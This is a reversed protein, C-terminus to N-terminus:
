AHLNENILSPKLTPCQHKQAANIRQPELSPSEDMIDDAATAEYTESIVRRKMLEYGGNYVICKLENNSYEVGFLAGFFMQAFDYSIKVIQTSAVLTRNAPLANVVDGMVSIVDVFWDKPAYERIVLIISGRVKVELLEGMAAQGVPSPEANIVAKPLSGVTFQEGLVVTKIASKAEVATKVADFVAKYVAYFGM